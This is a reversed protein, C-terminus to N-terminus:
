IWVAFGTVDDLTVAGTADTLSGTSSIAFTIGTSFGMGGEFNVFVPQNTPLPVRMTATSSALTPAVINFVKLWRLSANTNVLYFGLLRGAGSKVNQAAPTAPCNLNTVTGAGTANARYQVGVDGIANAGAPLAGTIGALNGTGINATVTGSVPQAAPFVVPLPSSAGQPRVGALYTTNNIVDEVSVFGVTWTTNSVPAVTGNFSWLYLYLTRDQDPLNTVRHGRVTVNPTTSSAILADSFYANRGDISLQALHGPTATTNITATSDGNNWGRRQSDISVNTATTGSYLWRYYNWGFLDLTGTGSGPWGAVTFRITNANPISAIAYRGPVGAAGTIAGLNIFQGVNEATFGHAALTVDVSTASLINYALGEGISDALLVAFNNNVIRASLITQHRAILAGNFAHTSRALFEANTSTGAGILLNGTAQSVTVGTGLRRQTFDATILSSGTAAFSCTWIDIPREVVPISPTTSLPNEEGVLAPTKTNIASVTTETAAGTPLPQSSQSVSVPTARLQSDTLPGSVPVPTARLQGDTLPGSVPVPTARLQTDTLPQSHQNAVPLRDTANVDTAVGDTGFQVKVRQVKVGGGLEDTSIIDGGTGINLQTNDAM